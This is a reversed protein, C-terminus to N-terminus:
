FFLKLFTMPHQVNNLLVNSSHSLYYDEQPHIYYLQPTKAIYDMPAPLCLFFLLYTNMKSQNLLSVNLDIYHVLFVQPTSYQPTTTM